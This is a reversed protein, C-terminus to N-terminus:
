CCIYEFQGNGTNPGVEDLAFVKNLSIIEDYGNM